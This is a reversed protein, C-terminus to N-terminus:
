ICYTVFLSASFFLCVDRMNLMSSYTRFSTGRKWKVGVYSTDLLTMCDEAHSLWSEPSAQLIGSLYTRLSEVSIYYKTLISISPQHTGDDEDEAMAAEVFLHSVRRSVSVHQSEERIPFCEARPNHTVLFHDNSHSITHVKSRCRFIYERHL